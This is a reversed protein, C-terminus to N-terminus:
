RSNQGKEKLGAENVIKSPSKLSFRRRFSKLSVQWRSCKLDEQNEEFLSHFLPKVHRSTAGASIKVLFLTAALLHPLNKHEAMPHQSDHVFNSCRDFRYQWLLGARSYVLCGTQMQAGPLGRIVM